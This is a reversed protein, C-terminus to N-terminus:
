KVRIMPIVELPQYYISAVFSFPMTEKSKAWIYDHEGNNYATRTWMNYNGFYENYGEDEFLPYQHGEAADPTYDLNTDSEKKLVCNDKDFGGVMESLSPIKVYDESFYIGAHEDTKEFTKVTMKLMRSRIFPDIGSMYGDEEESNLLARIESEYYDSKTKINYTQISYMGMDILSKQEILDFSGDERDHNFDAIIMYHNDDPNPSVEVVKGIWQRKMDGAIFSAMGRKLFDTFEYYSLIHKNQYKIFDAYLVKSNRIEQYYEYFDEWTYDGLENATLYKNVALVIDDATKEGINRMKKLESPHIKLLDSIKIDESVQGRSLIGKELQYFIRNPLKIKDLSELEAYFASSKISSNETKHLNRYEILGNKFIDIYKPSRLKECIHSITRFVKFKTYGYEKAMTHIYGKDLNEDLKFYRMFIERHTPHFRFQDLIYITTEKLDKPIEVEQDYPINLVQKYLEVLNMSPNKDKYIEVAEQLRNMKADNVEYNEVSHIIEKLDNVLKERNKM